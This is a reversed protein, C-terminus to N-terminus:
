LEYKNRHRKRLFWFADTDFRRLFLRKFKERSMIEIASSTSSNIVEFYHLGDGKEGVMDVILAFHPEDKWTM